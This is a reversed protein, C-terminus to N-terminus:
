GKKQSPNKQPLDRFSNTQVSKSIHDEQDRGGSYSLNCTHTVPVQGKKKVPTQVQLVVGGTWKERTIKSISTEGAIQGPQSQVTIRRIDVESTSLIIPTLWRCGAQNNSEV